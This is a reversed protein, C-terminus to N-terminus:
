DLVIYKLGPLFDLFYRVICTPSWFYRLLMDSLVFQGSLRHLLTHQIHVNGEDNVFSQIKSVPSYREVSTVIFILSRSAFFRQWWALLLIIQSYSRLAVTWMSLKTALVIFLSSCFNHLSILILLRLIAKYCKWLVHSQKVKRMSDVVLDLDLRFVLDTAFRDTINPGWESDFQQSVM